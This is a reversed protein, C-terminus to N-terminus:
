QSGNSASGEVVTYKSFHNIDFVVRGNQVKETQQLKWVKNREDYWYFKIATGDSKPSRYHLKLSSRFNLGDPGCDLQTIIDEKFNLGRVVLCTITVLESVSNAPLVLYVSDPILTLQQEKELQNENQYTLSLADSFTVLLNDIDLLDSITSSSNINLLSNSPAPAPSYPSTPTKQGCGSFLLLGSVLVTILTSALLITRKHM